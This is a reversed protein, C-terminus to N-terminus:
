VTQINEELFCDRQFSIKISTGPPGEISLKGNIDESLGNMLSMGLSNSKMLNFGEPLGAGDDEIKLEFLHESLHALSIKIKGKEDNPFAYKIANTIAENLILGIPVAQSVDLEVDDVLIEFFINVPNFSDKLHLVLEHIYDMMRISALNESQYLKQHILSISNVRHQSDRIATLAVKDKLFYSQSNLLSMVIQLNNKVRHHIEKLLWEKELVLKSLTTNKNEIEIQKRELETNHIKRSRSRWYLAGATVAIVLLLLLVVIVTIKQKGLEVEQLKRELTLKQISKDKKVSEFATQYQAMQKANEQHFLKNNISTYKHYNKFANKFDGQISDMKYDMRYMDKEIKKLGLAEAGKRSFGSYVRAREYNKMNFYHLAVSNYLAVLDFPAIEDKHKATYILMENCYKESRRKDKLEDNVHMLSLLRMIQCETADCDYEKYIGTIFEKAEEARGPRQFIDSFIGYAALYVLMPDDVKKAYELAKRSYKESLKYKFLYSYVTGLNTYYNYMDYSSAGTREGEQIATLGFKVAQEFIGINTYSDAIYGFSLVPPRIQLTKYLKLAEEASAVSERFKAYTNYLVAQETLLNALLKLNKQERAIKVANQAYVLGQEDGEFTKAIQMIGLAELYRASGKRAVLVADNAYRRARIFDENNVSEASLNILTNFKGNLYNAKDSLARSSKLLLAVSDAAQESDKKLYYAALKNQTNIRVTDPLDKDLQAVLRRHLNDQASVTISYLIFLIVISARMLKINLSIITM